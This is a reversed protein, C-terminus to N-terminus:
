KLWTAHHVSTFKLKNNTLHSAKRTGVSCDHMQPGTSGGLEGAFESPRSSIGTCSSSWFRRECTAAACVRPTRSNCQVNLAIVCVCVCVFHRRNHISIKSRSKRDTYEHHVPYSRMGFARVTKFFCRGLTQFFLTNTSDSLSWTGGLVSWALLYFEAKGRQTPNGSFRRWRCFPFPVFSFVTQWIGPPRLESVLFDKWKLAFASENLM